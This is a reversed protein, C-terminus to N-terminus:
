ERVLFTNYEDESYGIFKRYDAEKEERLKNAKAVYEENPDFIVAYMSSANWNNCNATEYPCNSLTVIIDREGMFDIYDGPKNTVPLMEM